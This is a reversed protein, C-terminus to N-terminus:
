KVLFLNVIILRTHGLCCSFQKSDQRTKILFGSGSTLGIGKFVLRYLGLGIELVVGRRQNFALSAATVGTVHQVRLLVQGDVGMM